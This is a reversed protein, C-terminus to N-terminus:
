FFTFLPPAMGNKRFNGVVQGAMYITHTYIEDWVQWVPMSQGFLNTTQRRAEPSQGKLVGGAYDFVVNIFRRLGAKSNLSAATDPLSLASGKLVASAIYGATNAAHHVQQAFDRQQPTAKDRYLREPMSDAMALLVKRQHELMRVQSERPNEGNGAQAALGPAAGALIGITM